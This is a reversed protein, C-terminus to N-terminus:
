KLLLLKITSSETASKLEALYIGSAVFEGNTDVGQWPFSYSHAPLEKEVLTVVHQGLLNYIKLSMNQRVHNDFSIVTTSNFPNPYNQYLTFTRPLSPTDGPEAVDTLTQFQYVFITDYNRMALNLTPTAVGTEFYARTSARRGVSTSDIPLGTRYDLFYAVYSKRKGVLVKAGMFAYEPFLLVESEWARVLSDGEFRYCGLGGPQGSDALNGATGHYIFEDGASTSLFDDVLIAYSTAREMKIKYLEAGNSNSVGVITGESRSYMPDDPDVGHEEFYNVFTAYELLSDSVLDGMGVGEAGASWLEEQLDLTFRKAISGCRIWFVSPMAWEDWSCADLTVVVSPPIGERDIVRITMNDVIWPIGWSGGSAVIITDHLLMNGSLRVRVLRSVASFMGTFDFCGVYVTLTDGDMCSATAFLEGVFPVSILSDRDLMYLVVRGGNKDTFVFGALESDNGIVPDIQTFQEAGDIQEQYVVQYDGASVALSVGVMFLVCPLFSRM